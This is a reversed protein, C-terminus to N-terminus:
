PGLSLSAPKEQGRGVSTEDPGTRDRPLVGIRYDAYDTREVSAAERAKVFAASDIHPVGIGPPSKTLKREVVVSGQRFANTASAQGQLRVSRGHGGAIAM